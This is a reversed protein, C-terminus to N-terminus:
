EGVDVTLVYNTGVFRIEFVAPLGCDIVFDERQLGLHLLINTINTEVARYIEKTIPEGVLHNCSKRVQEVVENWIEQKM